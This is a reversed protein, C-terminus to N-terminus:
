RETDVRMMEHKGPWRSQPATRSCGQSTETIMSVEAPLNGHDHLGGRADWLVGFSERPRDQLMRPLTEMIMSVEAPLDGHDHPGGRADWLAGFSEGHRDQLM